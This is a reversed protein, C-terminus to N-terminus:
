RVSISPSTALLTRGSYLRVEYTGPASMTVNWTYTPTTIPTQNLYEFVSAGVSYLALWDDSGALGGTLRVTVSAGVSVDKASVSLAPGTPPAPEPTPEPAPPAPPEAVPPEPAPPEAVPPEPAPPEVVPPEPAPAPAPSDAPATGSTVEIPQSTAARTFQVPAEVHTDVDLGRLSASGAGRNGNLFLRFEYIGATTPMTITWRRATVAPGVSISQLFSEDPAGEAALAIWQNAGSSGGTLTLTIHGGAAVTSDSVVLLPSGLRSSGNNEDNNESKNKENNTNNNTNTNNGAKDNGTDKKNKNKDVAQGEATGDVFLDDDVPNELERIGTASADSLTRANAGSLDNRLTRPSESPATPSGSCAYMGLGLVAPAVAFFIKSM